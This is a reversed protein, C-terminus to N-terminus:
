FIHKSGKRKLVSFASSVQILFLGEKVEGKVLISQTSLVQHSSVQCCGGLLMWVDLSPPLAASDGAVEAIEGGWIKRLIMLLCLLAQISGAFGALDKLLEELQFVHFLVERM